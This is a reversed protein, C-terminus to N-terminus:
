NGSIESLLKNRENRLKKDVNLHKESYIDLKLKENEKEFDELEEDSFIRHNLPYQLSYGNESLIDGAVGEFVEIEAPTFDEHYHGFNDRIIPKTVNRWMYGAKATRISEKSDFYHLAASNLNVNLFKNIKDVEREPNSILSEYHIIMFRGPDVTKEIEKAMLYDSKWIRALHYPHKEGVLVRRFSGAVDRGDRVLHIYYPHIGEGEIQPYFRANSMSKCCWYSAGDKRAMSEYIVKFVEILSRKKCQDFIVERDLEIEWKVPNAEVLRCVDHILSSFNADESLPFYKELIPFFTDLIHPPHHASIM